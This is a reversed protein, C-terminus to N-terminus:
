EGDEAELVVRVNTTTDFRVRISGHVDGYGGANTSIEYHGNELELEFGGEEDVTVLRDGVEVWATPIAEGGGTEVRGELTGERPIEDDGEGLEVHAFAVDGDAVYVDEYGDSYGDADTVLVEWWGESVAFGRSWNETDPISGLPAPSHYREDGYITIECPITSGGGIATAYVDIEGEGPGWERDLSVDVTETEGAVVDVALHEDVYGDARVELVYNGSAIARDYAGRDDTVTEVDDVSGDERAFAVTAEPVPAGFSTIRGAVSGDEDRDATVGGIANTLGFAGATAAICTRRLITRRDSTM